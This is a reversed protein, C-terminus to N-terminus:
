FRRGVIMKLILHDTSHTVGVGLGFNLEWDTSFNVDIAPRILHEQDGAALSTFDPRSGRRSGTHSRWHRTFRTTPRCCATRWKNGATWPLTATCSSWQKAWRFLRRATFRFKM